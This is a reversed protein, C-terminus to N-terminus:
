NEIFNNLNNGYNKGIGTIKAYAKGHRISSVLKSDCGIELAIKNNSLGLDFLEVIKLVDQPSVVPYLRKERFKFSRKINESLTVWELNDARNNIKNNDVHDVTNCGEKIECFHSAIIRHSDYTKGSITVCYYGRSRTYQKAIIGKTNKFNGLNSVQWGTDNGSIIVPKWIEESM